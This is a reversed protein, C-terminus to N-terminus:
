HKLSGFLLTNPGLYWYYYLVQASFGLQKPGQVRLSHNDIDLISRYALGSLPGSINPLGYTVM